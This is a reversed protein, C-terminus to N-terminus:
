TEVKARVYEALDRVTADGRNFRREDISIDFEEELTMAITSLDDEDALLDIDLRQDLIDGEDRLDLCQKVIDEVVSYVSM